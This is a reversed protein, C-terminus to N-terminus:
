LNMLQLLVSQLVLLYSYVVSVLLVQLYWRNVIMIITDHSSCLDYCVVIVLTFLYERFFVSKLNYLFVLPLTPGNLPGRNM